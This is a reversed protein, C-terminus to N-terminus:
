EKRVVGTVGALFLTALLWGLLIQIWLFWRLFRPSTLWRSLKSRPTERNAPPQLGCFALLRQPPRIPSELNPDPYLGGSILFQQLRRLRTWVRPRGLITPWNKQRSLADDVNPEPHWSDEQGLKVLPLSNEVAYVLPAFRAYRDPPQGDRKFSKYAGEEKPVINGALYARRHVVWGLGSLGAIWYVALLPNYGYGITSRLVGSEVRAAWTRDEQERRRREMEQLVTVAGHEDGMDKLVKALQRYPLPKFPDVLALWGLRTKADRPSSGSIHGYVFGDLFLKGKEPWSNEDDALSRASADVLGLSTAKVGRWLLAGAVTARQAWVGSFKGGSCDLDGGIQAGTLRVDGEASFGDNLLANGKVNARHASLADRGPNKFTGAGCDLYGGIQTGILRVEGEASFGSSLFVAGEVRAGDASLAEKGINKFTGARCDLDGRIQAGVLRVEGEASFGDRLFVSGKVNTRDGTVSQVRSGALNLAPLDASILNTDDTLRCRVLLLRFPVPVFSLDLGGTIRAAHVQIGMPDVASAADRDVCLWRILDARIEREHDWEDARAPDNLPDDDKDSPGCWAVEGKPAARLLKLEAQSLDPFRTRALTVLDVVQQRSAEAM